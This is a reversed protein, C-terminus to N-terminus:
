KETQSTGYIYVHSLAKFLEVTNIEKIGTDTAIMNITHLYTFGRRPNVAWQIVPDMVVLQLRM